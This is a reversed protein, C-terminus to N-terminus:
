CSPWSGGRLFHFSELFIGPGELCGHSCEVSDRPEYNSGWFVDLSTSSALSMLVDKTVGVGPWTLCWSNKLVSLPLSSWSVFLIPSLHFSFLSGFSLSIKIQWTKGYGRVREGNGPPQKGDVPVVLDADVSLTHRPCQCSRGRTDTASHLHPSAKSRSDPSLSAPSCHLSRHQCWGWWPPPFRVKQTRARRITLWDWPMMPSTQLNLLFKPRLPLTLCWVWVDYPLM